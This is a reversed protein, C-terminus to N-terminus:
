KNPFKTERFKKKQTDEVVTTALHLTNNAIEKTKLSVNANKQTQTDLTTVAHNIQEIGSQQEKSSAEIDKILTLTKSINQILNHYGSIMKDAINKGNNAKNTANEVLKKIENAAESSRSALNRVEQAVVAFGKGSEGATAAEVAANLSLINTQFAIQDIVSIAENIEYIHTNIDDMSLTTQTALEEGENASNILENAYLSMSVVNSTNNNITETIEELSASTEELSAATNNSATSLVDVNDMLSNASSQLTLGNRKNNTLMENISNRLKNIDITLTELIGDKEIDELVLEQTYDYHTYQNLTKNITSFHKKTTKIMTNVDNKFANLSANNTNSEIHQSYWGRKVKNIVIKAEEMLQQDQDLLSKTKQINENVIKAMDGFEDNTNSDLTNVQSTERNLYAFFSLLGSQFDNLPSLIKNLFLYLIVITILLFFLAFLAIFTLGIYIPAFAKEKDIEVTLYWKTSNIQAIALLKEKEDKEVQAFKDSTDIVENFSKNLKNVLQTDKHILIKGNEDVLYGFGYDDININLVTSVIADLFIDSGVVGIITNNQIIPAYISITLKKTASDIYPTTVGAKQSSLASKYWPRSRPDYNDKQPTTDRGSWRTMFGDNEFGIYVSGFGGADKSLNLIQHLDELKTYRDFHSVKNSLSNIIDIKSQLYNDVYKAGDNAILHEKTKLDDFHLDYNNSLMQYGLIIFAVTILLSLPLLIKTKITM